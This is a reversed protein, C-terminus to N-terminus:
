FYKLTDKNDELHLHKDHCHHYRNNNLVIFIKKIAYYKKEFIHFVKFVSGYGGKGILKIENYNNRYKNIYKSKLQLSSPSSNLIPSLASKISNTPSDEIELKTLNNDQNLVNIGNLSEIMFSLNSRM